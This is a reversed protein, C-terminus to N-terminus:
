RQLLLSNSKLQQFNSKPILVKTNIGRNQTIKDIAKLLDKESTINTYVDYGHSGFVPKLVVPCDFVKFAKLIYYAYM